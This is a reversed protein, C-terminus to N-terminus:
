LIHCVVVSPAAVVTVQQCSAHFVRIDTPEHDSWAKKHFDKTDGIQGAIDNEARALVNKLVIIEIAELEELVLLGIVEM